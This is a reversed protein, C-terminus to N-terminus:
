RLSNQLARKGKQTWPANSSLRQALALNSQDRRLLIPANCRVILDKRSVNSTQSTNNWYKRFELKISKEKIGNFLEKKFKKQMERHNFTSRVTGKKVLLLLKELAKGFNRKNQIGSCTPWSRLCLWKILARQLRKIKDCFVGILAPLELKVV